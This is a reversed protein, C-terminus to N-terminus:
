YQISLKRATANTLRIRRLHRTQSACRSSLRSMLYKHSGGAFGLKGLELQELFVDVVRVPNDDVVYDELQEPFLTVQTRDKSHIFRKM